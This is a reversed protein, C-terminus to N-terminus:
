SIKIFHQMVCQDFNVGVLHSDGNTAVVEFVGNGITLLSVVFTGGSLDYVLFDLHPLAFSRCPGSARTM